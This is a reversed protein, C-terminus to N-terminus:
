QSGDSRVEMDVFAGRFATRPRRAAAEKGETLREQAQAADEDREEM